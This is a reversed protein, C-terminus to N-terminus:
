YALAPDFRWVSYHQAHEYVRIKYGRENEFVDFYGTAIQSWGPRGEYYRTEGNDSMHVLTIPGQVENEVDAIFGLLVNTDFPNFLYFHTYEGLNLSLADQNLVILNAFKCAWEQAQSALMPDLEVGTARGEFGAGVFYALVRGLGCGVDLLHSEPSFDFYSFLEELVFYPTPTPDHAGTGQLKTKGPDVLPIGCVECDRREDSALLEEFNDTVKNLSKAVLQALGERQKM